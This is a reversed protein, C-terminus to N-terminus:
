ADPAQEHLYAISRVLEVLTERQEPTLPEFQVGMGPPVGDLYPSPAVRYVDNAFERWQAQARPRSAPTTGRLLPRALSGAARASSCALNRRVM